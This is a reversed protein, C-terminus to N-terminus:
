LSKEICRVILSELDMHTRWGLEEDIKLPNSVIKPLSNKRSLSKDVILHDEYSLNFYSFIIEVVERISTGKGSGIVYTSSKGETIIKSIADVVEGAFSWDRVLDLNGVKFEGGKNSVIKKASNILQMILYESYRFESEHNFLIGSYIKWGHTDFLEKAQIHNSIKSKAYPTSGMLESNENFIGTLNNKFMESSSAQFISPNISNQKISNVLNEFISIIESHTKGNDYISKVVSSPGSLNYIIDPKVDKIFRDVEEFNLLNLKSITIDNFNDNGLTSLKKYFSTNDNKRSSGYIKINKNKILNSSLFIGDQGTIGTIFIKQM